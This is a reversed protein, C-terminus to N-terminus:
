PTPTLTLRASFTQTEPAITLQYQDPYLLDLRQRLNTLGLGGATEVEAEARLGCTNRVVFDLRDAALSLHLHIFGTENGRPGHKFANEVLPILILPAIEMQDAEGSLQASLEIHPGLRLQQLALYHEIYAWEQSVPVLPVQTEYIMYRMVESLRLIFTATHEDGRRALAHLNSLTNFLFHPNVQAQLAKLESQLQAETLQAMQQQSEQLRFWAKSLHLLSSLTLYVGMFQALQDWDFYNIFYYGPLLWDTLYAFTLWNALTGLGILAAAALLYWFYRGRGLLRPLAIELNLYVLLLLSLHFLGTYLYDIAQLSSSLATIRLIVYGSLAWFLLHYLWRHRLVWRLSHESWTM